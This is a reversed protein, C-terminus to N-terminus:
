ILNFKLINKILNLKFKLSFKFEIIRTLRCFTIFKKEPVGLM